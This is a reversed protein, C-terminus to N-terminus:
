KINMERRLQSETAYLYRLQKVIGKIYERYKIPPPSDGGRMGVIQHSEIVGNSNYWMFAYDQNVYPHTIDINAYRILEQEELKDLKNILMYTQHCVSRFQKSLDKADKPKKVDDFENELVQSVKM